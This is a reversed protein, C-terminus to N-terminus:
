PPGEEPGRGAHIAAVPWRDRRAGNLAEDGILRRLRGENGRLQADLQPRAQLRGTRWPVRDHAAVPVRLRQHRKVADPEHIRREIRKLDEVQDISPERRRRGDIPHAGVAVRRDADPVGIHLNDGKREFVHGHNISLPIDNQSNSGLRMRRNNATRTRPVSTELLTADAWDAGFGAGIFPYTSATACDANPLTVLWDYPASIPTFM